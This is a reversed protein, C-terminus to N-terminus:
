RSQSPGPRVSRKGAVKLFPRGSSDRKGIADDIVAAIEGMEKPFGTEIARLAISSTSGRACAIDTNLSALLGALYEMRRPKFLLYPIDPRHVQEVAILVQCLRSRCPQQGRDEGDHLLLDYFM